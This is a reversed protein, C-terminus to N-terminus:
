RVRPPAPPRRINRLVDLLLRLGQRRHVVIVPCDLRPDDDAILATCSTPAAARLRPLGEVFATHDGGRDPHHARVFTRYATREQRTL